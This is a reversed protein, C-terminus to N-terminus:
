MAPVAHPPTDTLQLLERLQLDMRHDFRAHAAAYGADVVVEDQVDDPTGAWLQLDFLFGPFVFHAAWVCYGFGFLVSVAAVEGSTRLGRALAATVSRLGSGDGGLGFRECELDMHQALLHHERPTAATPMPSRRQPICPLSAASLMALVLEGPIRPSTLDPVEITYTDSMPREDDGAHGSNALSDCTSGATVELNWVPDRSWAPTVSLFRARVFEDHMTLRDLVWGHPAVIPACHCAAFSSSGGGCQKQGCLRGDLANYSRTQSDDDHKHQRLQQQRQQHREGASRSRPQPAPPSPKGSSGAFVTVDSVPCKLAAHSQWGYHVTGVALLVLMCLLPTGVAIALCRCM